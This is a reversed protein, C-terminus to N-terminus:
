GHGDTATEKQLLRMIVDANSDVSYREALEAMAEIVFEFDELDYTLIVTRVGRDLYESAKQELSKGEVAGDVGGEFTLPVGEDSQALLDDLDADGYGTGSLDPLDSLLALLLASDYTGLEGTRNDAAVIRAAADNDVDVFVCAMSTWALSRAAILTHNGALVEYPRGTHTGENVVIPRYQGNVKLSDAIAGVDGKRPNAHYTHLRSLAVNVTVLEPSSVDVV